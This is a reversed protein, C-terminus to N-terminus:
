ERRVAGQAFVDSREPVGRPTTAVGRTSSGLNRYNPCAINSRTNGDSPDIAIAKEAM